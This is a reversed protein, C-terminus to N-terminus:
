QNIAMVNEFEGWIGPTGKFTCFKGMNGNKTLEGWSFTLNESYTPKEGYFNWISGDKERSFCIRGMNVNKNKYRKENFHWIRGKSNTEGFFELKEEYESPKRQFYLHEVYEWKQSYIPEGHFPWIIRMNDIEGYLNWIIWLDM